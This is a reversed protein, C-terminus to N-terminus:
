AARRETTGAARRPGPVHIVPPAPRPLPSAVLAALAVRKRAQWHRDLGDPTFETPSLHPHFFTDRELAEAWRSVFLGRGTGGVRRTRSEWHVARAGPTYVVKYGARRLRLCLDIDNYDDPFREDFGGLQAFASRRVLMCAATVASFEQLSAVRGLYGVETGPRGRHLHLCIRKRDLIAGGHQLDGDPYHLRMGVAAITADLETVGVLHDLWGPSFDTVDNNLFLLWEGDTAKVAANNMAAFNFPGAYPFVQLRGATSERGLYDLLAPEDSAHDIVTVDYADYGATARLSGVCATVLDAGNKTPIIISIRPTTTRQPLVEHVDPCDTLPRVDASIGRRALAAVCAAARDAPVPDCATPSADPSRADPLVALPETVLVVDRLALGALTEVALAYLTGPGTAPQPGNRLRELAAALRSPEYVVLPGVVDRSLLHLWSFGPKLQLRPPADATGNADGEVHDAYLAQADPRRAWTAAIWLHADDCLTAAADCVAVPVGRGAALVEELAAVVSGGVADLDIPTPRTDPPAASVAQHLVAAPAVLSIHVFPLAQRGISELCRTGAHIAAETTDHCVIVLEARPLSRCSRALAAIDSRGAAALFRRGRLHRLVRDRLRRLTREAVKLPAVPTPATAPM